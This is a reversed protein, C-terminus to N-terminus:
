GESNRNSNCKVSNSDLSICSYYHKNIAACLCSPMWRKVGWGLPLPKLFFNQLAEPQRRWACGGWYSLIGELCSLAIAPAASVNEALGHNLITNWCKYTHCWQINQFLVWSLKCTINTTVFGPTKLFPMNTTVLVPWDPKFTNEGARVMPNQAKMVYGSCLCLKLKDTTKCLHVLM